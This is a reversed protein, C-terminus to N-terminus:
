EDDKEESESEWEIQSGNMINQEFQKRCTDLDSFLYYRTRDKDNRLRNNECCSNCLVKGLKKGVDGEFRIHRSDLWERFWGRVSETDMRAPWGGNAQFSGRLLAEYVFAQQPELNNIKGETLYKTKPVKMPLFQSIDRQLFLYLLKEALQNNGAKKLAAFYEYDQKHEDSLEVVLYRREDSAFRVSRDSNTAMILRIFNQQSYADIGKPEVIGSRETVLARLIRCDSLNTFAAEDAFVLLKNDLVKNHKGSVAGPREVYLGHVGMIKLIPKLAANKGTGQEGKLIIAAQPKEEPKQVLHAFWDMLYQYVQDDDQCIIHRIHKLWRQVDPDSKSCVMPEVAFGRYLNLKGNHMPPWQDPNFVPWFTSSAIFNSKPSSLWVQSASQTKIKKRGRSDEEEKIPVPPEHILLERFDMFSMASWNLQNHEDDMDLQMIRNKNNLRSHVFRHNYQAVIRNINERIQRQVEASDSIPVVDATKAPKNEEIVTTPKRKQTSPALKGTDRKPFQYGNDKAMKVLTGVGIGKGSRFGKWASNISQQAESDYKKGGQSWQIWLNKGHHGSDWAHVAMGITKWEDHDCDPDLCDLMDAVQDPTLERDTFPPLTSKTRTLPPLYVDEHQKPYTRKLYDLLPNVPLAQQGSGLQNGTWTLPSNYAIIEIKPCDRGRADTAFWSRKGFDTTGTFLIHYGTGSSSLEIYPLDESQGDLRIGMSDFLTTAWDEPQGTNANRAHDLDLAIFPEQQNHLYVAFPHINKEILPRVQQWHQCHCLREGKIHIDSEPLVPIKQRDATLWYPYETLLAPITSCNMM